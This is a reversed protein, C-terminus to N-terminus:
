YSLVGKTPLDRFVWKEVENEVKERFIENLYKRSPVFIEFILMFFHMPIFHLSRPPCENCDRRGIWAGPSNNDLFQRVTISRLLNSGWKTSFINCQRTWSIHGPMVKIWCIAIKSVIKTHKRFSYTFEKRLHSNPFFPTETLANRIVRM